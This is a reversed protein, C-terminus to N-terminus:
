MHNYSKEEVFTSKHFVNCDKKIKARQDNLKYVERAFNIFKDNFIMDVELRRLEDEVEWLLNNINYLSIFFNNGEDLQLEQYIVNKLYTYENIVNILKNQDKIKTSKIKLISLRDLAEGTSIEIKM